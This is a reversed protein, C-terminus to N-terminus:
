PADRMVQVLPRASIRMELASPAMAFKLEEDPEGGGPTQVSHIDFCSLLMAMAMKIELLALYRGPCLRPGAGFPTSVRKLGSPTNIPGSQGDHTNHGDAPGGEGILWRDPDFADGHAVHQPDISHHRMVLLLQTGTPVEIGHLVTDRLAEVAFFPAVPKLRMAEHACAEVYSLEAIVEPTYCSPDPALRLVEDRARQLADPHRHLLHIMWALTNATTDEGALLLTWVNALMDQEHIGSGQQDAAVLMAEILNQPQESRGPEAQLRQRAQTIYGEIAKNVAAVSRDLERDAPLKVYRWLPLLSLVRKQLMPFVKDLHHQIVGGDSELTNVDIGFSLGAVGDVTYRMLDAQLAIPKGTLAAKQWRGQLRLVVKHLAPFYNRVQSPSFASMVMRRQREWAEGEAFFVGDSGLMERAIDSAVHWRRFGAPRDRLVVNITEPDAVVLFKQPGLKYRFFEGYQQTWREVD